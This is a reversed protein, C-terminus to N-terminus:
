HNKRSREKTIRDVPTLLYSLSPPIKMQAISQKQKQIVGKESERWCNMIKTNQQHLEKGRQRAKLIEKIKLKTHKHM